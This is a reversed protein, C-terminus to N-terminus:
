SGEKVNGCFSAIPLFVDDNPHKTEDWTGLRWVTTPVNSVSM